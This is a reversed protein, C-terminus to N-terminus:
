WCWGDWSCCQSSDASFFKPPVLRNGKSPLQLRLRDDPLASRRLSTKPFLKVLTDIILLILTIAQSDTMAMLEDIVMIRKIEKHVSMTLDPESDSRLM